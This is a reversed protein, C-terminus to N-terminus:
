KKLRDGLRQLFNIKNEKLDKNILHSSYNKVLFPVVMKTIWGARKLIAKKLIVDSVFNVGANLLPNHKDRSFLHSATALAHSIPAVEDHLEKIDAQIMMRKTALVAELRLKEEQLEKYTRM